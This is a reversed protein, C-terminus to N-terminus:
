NAHAIRKGNDAKSRISKDTNGNTERRRVKWFKPDIIAPADSNWQLGAWEVAEYIQQYDGNVMREPWVIKVNL